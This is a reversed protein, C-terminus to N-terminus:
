RTFPLIMPESMLAARFYLNSMSTESRIRVPGVLGDRPDLDDDAAARDHGAGVEIGVLHM